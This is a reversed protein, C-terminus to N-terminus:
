QRTFPINSPMVPVKIGLTNLRNMVSYVRVDQRPAPGVVISKICDIIAFSEVYPVILGDRVYYKPKLVDRDASVLGLSLRVEREERFHRNKINILADLLASLAEPSFNKLPNFPERSLFNHILYDLHSLFATEFEPKLSLLNTYCESHEDYSVDSLNFASTTNKNHESILEILKERDFQIAYGGDTGYGRWQSLLGHRASEEDAPTCFCALYPNMHSFLVGIILSAYNEAYGAQEPDVGRGYFVDLRKDEEERLHRLVGSFIKTLTDNVSTMESEDNTCNPATCWLRGLELIGLLGAGTTYHFLTKKRIEESYKPMTYSFLKKAATSM